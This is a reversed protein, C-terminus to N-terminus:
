RGVSAAPTLRALHPCAGLQEIEATGDQISIEIEGIERMQHFPRCFLLLDALEDGPVADPVRAQVSLRLLELLLGPASRDSHECARAGRLALVSLSPGPRVLATTKANEEPTKELRRHAASIRRDCDDVFGFLHSHWAGEIRQVVPSSPQELKLMQFEIQLKEQHARPCPGLDM